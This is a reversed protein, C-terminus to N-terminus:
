LTICKNSKSENSISIKQLYEMENLNDIILQTQTKRFLNLVFKVQSQNGSKFKFIRLYRFSHPKKKKTAYLNVVTRFELIELNPCLQSLITINCYAVCNKGSRDTSSYVFHKLQSFIFEHPYLAYPARIFLRRLNFYCDDITTKIDTTDRNLLCVELNTVRPGLARLGNFNLNFQDSIFFAQHQKSHQQMYERILQGCKKSTQHLAFLTSLDLYNLILEFPKRQQMNSAGKALDLLNVDSQSYIPGYGTWHVLMNRWIIEKKTIFGITEGYGKIQLEAHRNETSKVFENHFRTNLNHFIETTEEDEPRLLGRIVGITLKKLNKSKRLWAIVYFIARFHLRSITLSCLHPLHEIIREIQDPEKLDVISLTEIQKFSRIVRVMEDTMRGSIMYLELSKICKCKSSVRQMLDITEEHFTMGLSEVRSLVNAFSEITQNSPFDANFDFMDIINLETLHNLYKPVLEMMEPLTFGCRHLSFCELQPNNLLIRKLTFMMIRFYRFELKRLNCYIPLTIYDGDDTGGCDFTLETIQLHPLLVDIAKKFECDRFYFKDLHKTYKHLTRSMWHDKDIDRIDRVEIAKVNSGFCKLLARYLQRDRASESEIVFYKNEYRKQFIKQAIAEFRHSISAIYLLEADNIDVFIPWLIETPFYELNSIRSYFGDVRFIRENINLQQKSREKIQQFQM